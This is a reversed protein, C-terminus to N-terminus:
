RNVGGQANRRIETAANEPNETGFIATGAVFINAGAEALKQVNDAKVGGDVQIHLDPYVERFRRINDIADEVMSQGGFGPEVTMQLIMDVRDAFPLVKDAETYPKVAIGCKIGCEKIKDITASIDSDAEIHFTIMDAGAKAFSEIYSLPDTIMLHVDLFLDTVKDVAAVVPVGYSINPVFHGDMVDIHLWDVGKEVRKIEAEFNACDAALLSPAIIMM